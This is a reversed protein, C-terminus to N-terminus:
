HRSILSLNECRKHRLYCDNPLKIVDKPESVEQGILFSISSIALFFKGDSETESEDVV